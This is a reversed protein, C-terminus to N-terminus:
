RSAKNGGVISAFLTDIYDKIVKNQVPNESTDSMESDITIYDSDYKIGYINSIFVSGALTTQSLETASAITYIASTDSTILLRLQSGISLGNTLYSEESSIYDNDAAVTNGVIYLEDFDTYAQSLTITQPATTDTAEYM